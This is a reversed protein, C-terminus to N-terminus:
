ALTSQVDIHAHTYSKSIFKNVNSVPHLVFLISNKMIYYGGIYERM